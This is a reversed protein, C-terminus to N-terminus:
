EYVETSTLSVSLGGLSSWHYYFTTLHIYHHIKLNLICLHSVHLLFM